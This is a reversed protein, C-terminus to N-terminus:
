MPVPGKLRLCLLCSKSLSKKTAANSRGPGTGILSTSTTIRVPFCLVAAPRLPLRRVSLLCAREAVDSDAVRM